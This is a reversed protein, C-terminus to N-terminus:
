LTKIKKYLNNSYYFFDIRSLDAYIKDTHNDGIMFSKNRNSKGVCLIVIDLKKIM